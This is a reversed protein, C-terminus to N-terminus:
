IINNKIKFSFTPKPNCHSVFFVDFIHKKTKRLHLTEIKHFISKFAIETKRTKHMVNQPFSPQKRKVLRIMINPFIKSLLYIIILKRLQKISCRSNRITKYSDLKRIVLEIRHDLHFKHFKTIIIIVKKFM